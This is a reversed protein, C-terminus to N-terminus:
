SAHVGNSLFRLTNDKLRKHVIPNQMISAKSVPEPSACRNQVRAHSFITFRRNCIRRKVVAHQVAAGAWVIGNM